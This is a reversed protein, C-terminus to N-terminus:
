ARGRAVPGQPGDRSHGAYGRSHRHRWRGNCPRPHGWSSTIATFRADGQVADRVDLPMLLSPEVATALLEVYPGAIAATALEACSERHAQASKSAPQIGVNSLLCWRCSAQVQETREVETTIGAAM